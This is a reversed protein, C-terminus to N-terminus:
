KSLRDYLEKNTKFINLRDAYGMKMFQDKTISDKTGAHNEPKFSGDIKNNNFVKKLSKIETEVDEAGTLYKGLESPLGQETLKNTIDLLKEKKSVEKEKDEVVKLRNELEIETESKEKPKYKNLEDDKDKLKKSYETRVKDTESQLIKKIDEETYTKNTTTAIPPLNNKGNEEKNTIEEKEKEM